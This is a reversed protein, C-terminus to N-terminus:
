GAKNAAGIKREAASLLAEMGELNVLLVLGQEAQYAVREAVSCVLDIYKEMEKRRAANNGMLAFGARRNGKNEWM